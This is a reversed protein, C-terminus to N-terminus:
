QKIIEFKQVSMETTIAQVTKITRNAFKSIRYNLIFLAIELTLVHSNASITGFFNAKQLLEIHVQGIYIQCVRIIELMAGTGLAVNPQLTFM